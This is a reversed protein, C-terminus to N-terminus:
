KCLSFLLYDESLHTKSLQNTPDIRISFERSGTEEVPVLWVDSFDPCWVAFYDIEGHYTRRTGNKTHTASSCTAFTVSGNKYKGTKCQIKKFDGESTEVVFDYRQNDGFPLLVVPYVQILASLVIGETREGVAKPHEM